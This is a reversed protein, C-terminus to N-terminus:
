RGRREWPRDTQADLRCAVQREPLFFRLDHAKNAGVVKAEPRVQALQDDRPFRSATADSPAEDLAYLRIKSSSAASDQYSVNPM